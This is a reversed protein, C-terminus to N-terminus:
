KGTSGFGGNRIGDANDDYTIGFSQFIGQMFKDGQKIEINKNQKCDNTMKIFINGEGDSYYFDSDIIGVTNDLQCRYKFGLSSRPYCALFWGDDIKVKIGTPIKITCCPKLSFSIPSVFDYGASGKTSRVPLKISDYSEKIQTDTIKNFCKKMDKSFQNFSVKEFRGVQNM